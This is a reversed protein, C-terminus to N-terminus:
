ESIVSEGVSLVHPQGDVVDIRTISANPTKHELIQSKSLGNIKGVLARIALGHSFSLVYGVPFAQSKEMLHDYMRDQAEAITEAGPLGGHIGDIDLQAIVEPTYAKTREIGEWQGQSLELLREDV